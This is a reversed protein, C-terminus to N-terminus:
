AATEKLAERRKREARIFARVARATSPRVFVERGKATVGARLREVLGSDNAAVKGFYTTGMGTEALFPEIEAM